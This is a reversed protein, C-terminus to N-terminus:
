PLKAFLLPLEIIFVPPVLFIRRCDKPNDACLKEAAIICCCNEGEIVYKHTGNAIDICFCSFRAVSVQLLSSWLTMDVTAATYCNCVSQSPCVSYLACVCNALLACITDPLDPFSRNMFALCECRSWCFHFIDKLCIIINSRISM